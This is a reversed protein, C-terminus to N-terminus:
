DISVLWYEIESEEPLTICGEPLRPGRYQAVLMQSPTDADSPWSVSMRLGVPINCDLDNRIVRDFDPHGIANVLIGNETNDMVNLICDRAHIRNIQTFRLECNGVLMNISFANVLYM